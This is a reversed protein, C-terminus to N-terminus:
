ITPSHFHFVICRGVSQRPFIDTHQLRNGSCVRLSQLQCGPQRRKMDLYQAEQLLLQPVSMAANRKDNHPIRRAPQDNHPSPSPVTAMGSRQRRKMYNAVFVAVDVVLLFSGVAMVSVFSSAM